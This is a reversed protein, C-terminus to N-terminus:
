PLRTHSADQTKGYSTSVNGPTSYSTSVNGTTSYFEVETPVIPESLVIPYGIAMQAMQLRDIAGSPTNFLWLRSIAM